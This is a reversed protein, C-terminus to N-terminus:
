RGNMVRAMRKNGLYRPSAKQSRSKKASGYANVEAKAIRSDVLGDYKMAMYHANAVLPVGAAMWFNLLDEIMVGWSAADGLARLEELMCIQDDDPKQGPAKFEFWAHHEMPWILETDPIAKKVGRKWQWLHEKESKPRSRDHAVFKHPGVIAYRAFVVAKEQRWTERPIWVRKPKADETLKPESPFDSM